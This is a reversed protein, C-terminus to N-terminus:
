GVKKYKFLNQKPRIHKHFFKGKSGSDMLMKFLEKPVGTYQYIGGKNFQIELIEDEENYGIARINSSRVTEREM